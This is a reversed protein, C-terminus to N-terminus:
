IRCIGEKRHNSVSNEKYHKSLMHLTNKGYSHYSNVKLSGKKM